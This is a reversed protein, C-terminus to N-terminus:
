AGEALRRGLNIEPVLRVAPSGPRCRTRVRCCRVALRVCYEVRTDAPNGSAGPVREPEAPQVEYGEAVGEALATRLDDLREHTVKARQKSLVEPLLMAFCNAM